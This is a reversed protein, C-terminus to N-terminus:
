TPSPACRTPIRSAPTSVSCGPRSTTASSASASPTSSWSRSCAPSSGQRRRPGAQPVRDRAGRSRRDRDDGAAQLAAGPRRAGAPGPPAQGQDGRRPRPAAGGHRLRRAAEPGDERRHRARRARQRHRRGHARLSRPDPRHARDEVQGAGADQGLLEPPRGSRGPRYLLTRESVLQAFDKDPTVMYTTMGAAEARGVLTGIVDDAEWGDVRVVPINFGELIRFVYPMATGLDEPMSERQAKYEAFEEHRHTPEGTDFVAALHTPEFRELLELLTNTFVFPASTNMGRSNTVPNNILAFHARYALALGDLLCLVRRDELDLEGTRGLARSAADTPASATTM